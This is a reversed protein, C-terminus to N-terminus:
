RDADAVFVAKVSGSTPDTTGSVTVTVRYWDLPAGFSAGLLAVQPDTDGATLSQSEVQYAEAFNADAYDTAELTVDVGQDLTNVVKVATADDGEVSFPDGGENDPDDDGDLDPLDHTNTDRIQLEFEDDSNDSAYERENVIAM